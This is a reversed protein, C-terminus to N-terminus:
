PSHTDLQVRYALRSFLLHSVILSPEPSIARTTSEHYADDKEVDMSPPCSPITVAITVAAALSIHLSRASIGSNSGAESSLSTVWLHVALHVRM